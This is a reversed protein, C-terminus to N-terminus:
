NTTHTSVKRGGILFDVRDIRWRITFETSTNTWDTDWPITTSEATASTASYTRTFLSTGSIFFYAANRNGYAQSYFGVVRSDGATPATPVTLKFTTDGMMIMKSTSVKGATGGIDAYIRIKGDGVQLRGSIKKFIDDDLGYIYPDYFWHGYKSESVTGTYM